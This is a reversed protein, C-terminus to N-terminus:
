NLYGDGVILKNIAKSEEIYSEIKEFHELLFKIRKNESQTTLIAQQQKINLGSKEVLKFSKTEATELNKWFSEELEISAKNIIDKFKKLAEITSLSINEDDPADYYSTVSAEMYGNHNYSRTVIEFREIGKVFIDMSGNDYKKIVKDVLVYCGVNAIELDIKSVIGFGEGSTISSNVMKKYREEFIHLPYKAGPFM